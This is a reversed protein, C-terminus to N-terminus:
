VVSKRDLAKIVGYSALHEGGVMMPIKSDNIIKKTKKYIIELSTKVDGMPLELDGVDVTNFDKLNAKRYPSYWEIGISEVRIHNGAFRTGPRYSTTTDLPVSFIVVDSENYTKHCSQFSLDVKKM